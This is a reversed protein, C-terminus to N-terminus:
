HKFYLLLFLLLSFYPTIKNSGSIDNDHDEFIEYQEDYDNNDDMYWVRYIQNYVTRGYTITNEGSYSSKTTKTSILNHGYAYASNIMNYSSSINVPLFLSEIKQVNIQNDEIWNNMKYLVYETTEVETDRFEPSFDQYNHYGCAMSLLLSIFKFYLM